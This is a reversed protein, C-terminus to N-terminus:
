IPCRPGEGKERRARRSAAGPHAELIEAVDAQEIRSRKAASRVVDEEWIDSPRRRHWLGLAILAIIVAALVTITIAVFSMSGRVSDPTMAKDM